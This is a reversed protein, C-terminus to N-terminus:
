SRQEEESRDDDAPRSGMSDAMPAPPPPSM